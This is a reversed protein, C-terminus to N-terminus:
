GYVGELTLGRQRDFFVGEVDIGNSASRLMMSNWM